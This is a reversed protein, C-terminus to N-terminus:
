PGQCTPVELYSDVAHHVNRYLAKRYVVEAKEVFAVSSYRQKVLQVANYSMSSYVANSGLIYKLKEAYDREDEYQWGNLGNVIVEDLCADKKCLAPLGSALAEIYTLGQTESTSASVFLDGLHYYEAIREPAIMGAFIVDSKIGLQWALQELETRNPGDGVILLTTNKLHMKAHFSLIEELNKEKALRGVYLLIRNEEPISLLHKIEFLREKPTPESFRSLDIGTPVVYVKNKIGYGELIERVKDTPAIICDTQRYIWRSLAGAMHRGWKENPSFYHTYDEYVTHYTHVIPIDLKRSIKRALLFTSFECQTHIIDPKWDVIEQVLSSAFVTQVRAGPYVKGAGISGIYTVGDCTYSHTTQSLTLVRVDHGRQLLEKRLNLVSTVVGNVIPAYCDTTILIKM